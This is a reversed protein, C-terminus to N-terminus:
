QHFHYIITFLQCCASTLMMSTKFTLDALELSFDKNRYIFPHRFDIRSDGETALYILSNSIFTNNHIHLKSLTAEAVLVTGPIGSELLPPSLFKCFDPSLTPFDSAETKAAREVEVDAPLMKEKLAGGLIVLRLPEGTELEETNPEGEGARVELMKAFLKVVVAEEVVVMAAM